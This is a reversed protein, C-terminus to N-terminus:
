DLFEGAVESVVLVIGHERSSLMQGSVIYVSNMGSYLTEKIDINDKWRGGMIEHPRNGEPKRSFNKILKENRGCRRM